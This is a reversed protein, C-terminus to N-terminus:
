PTMTQEIAVAFTSSKESGGVIKAIKKFFFHKKQTSHGLDGINTVTLVWYFVM